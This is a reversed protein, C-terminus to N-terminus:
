LDFTQGEKALEVTLSPDRRSRRADTLMAELDEDTHWPDHHFLVLRRAEARAAFAVADATTSHGWGLRGPYERRTYQADHLLLDAHRALGLGSIWEPELTALDAGLAPEHDPLYALAHGNHEIRYGVTPGPHKVFAASITAGGITWPESPVDRFVPRSPVDRLHVPFFPPAFFPAIRRELDKLPAPPGWITFEVLPDWFPAFFRLGEIHDAHLHTILLDIRSPHKGELSMGFRRVGTGADLVILSGDDLDLTVCSTQGGFRVTEPGPSALTGRCGWITAKM